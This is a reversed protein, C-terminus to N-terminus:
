MTKTNSAIRFYTDISPPSTTGLRTTGYNVTLEGQPTRLLVVAGPILMAQAASSVAAQLAGQDIPKLGAQGAATTPATTATGGPPPTGVTQAAARPVGACGTLLLGVALLLRMMRHDGGFRSRSPGTSGRM